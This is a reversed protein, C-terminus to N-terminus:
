VSIGESAIRSLTPTHIEGGHTDCQAPGVDDILVILINPADPRLHDPEVRPQYISDQLTIGATSASPMPPFPLIEQAGAPSAFAAGLVFSFAALSTNTRM